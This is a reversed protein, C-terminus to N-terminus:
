AYVHMAVKSFAKLVCKVNYGIVDDCKLMHGSVAKDCWMYNMETTATSCLRGQGTSKM